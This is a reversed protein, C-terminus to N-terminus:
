KKGGQGWINKGINSLSWGSDTGPAGGLGAFLAANGAAGIGSLMSNWSQAAGLDGQAQAKMADVQTNALYGAGSLTNSAALNRAGINANGAYQAGTMGMNGAFEAGQTGLTGAYESAQLGAQGATTGAQMGAGALTALRNFQTQQGQTYLNSAREFATGAYDQAYRSLSKLQGGSGGVGAAQAAAQAAQQGQQLQFQYAPSYQAMMNATFPQSLSGGPAMGAQLQEMAQSGGQMYPQLLAMLQQAATTAGAGGAQAAQTVGRGAVDGAERVDQGAQAATSLIEPNVQNVAGTVTQGAQTYGKKLADAAHHAASAGQYGGIISTLLSPL